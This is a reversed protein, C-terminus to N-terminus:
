IGDLHRLLADRILTQDIASFGLLPRAPYHYGPGKKAVKDTLGEQHVRAIRAVRGFFGVSLQNEDQTTKLYKTTRVKNFMAAKQRKIRGKKGRLDKRRKRATYAAGDPAQQSAIRQAQSRRLEQAIKRTVVRRQGPQLKALLVGAWHEIAHLDDTM